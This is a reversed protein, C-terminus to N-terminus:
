MRPQETEQGPAPSIGAQRAAGGVWSSASVIPRPPDPLRLAREVRVASRALNVLTCPWRMPGGQPLECGRCYGLHDATHAVLLSGAVGPFGAILVGLEPAQQLHAPRQEPLM